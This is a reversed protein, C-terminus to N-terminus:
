RIPVYIHFLSGEVDSDFNKDYYEFDPTGSYEYQNAPLWTDFAYRYAEGVTKLDCPFVAYKQEPVDWRQMGAPVEDANSVALGAMYDFSGDEQTNGCVGFAGDIVNKIENSRQNFVGWLKSIENNENKGHYLIGVVAFAPKTVIQPEMTKQEEPRSVSFPVPKPSVPFQLETVPAPHNASIAQLYVERNPGAVRYGSREIWTFLAQYADNLLEHAGEYITCAMMECGALEHVSARPTNPLSKSVPVAAEVDIRQENYEVDYYVALAPNSAEPTLNYRQLHGALESLLRSVEGPRSLQDRIGLVRLTPAPKLVVEYVPLRREEELQYLRAEVREMRAQEEQIHRELEARRLRMMGRLEALSLDQELVQQIQELSFGLDKLALIRNLRPLQDVRYYRYGSFRDSWYPRLLGLQDYYRLTKISVQALKSFDGIKLM